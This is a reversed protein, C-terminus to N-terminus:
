ELRGSIPKQEQGIRSFSDQMLRFASQDALKGGNTRRAVRDTQHANCEAKLAAFRDNPFSVVEALIPLPSQATDHGIRKLTKQTSKLLGRGGLRV